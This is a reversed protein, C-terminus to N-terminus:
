HLKEVVRVTYVVKAFFALMKLSNEKFKQLWHFKEM